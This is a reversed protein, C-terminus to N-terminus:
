DQTCNVYPLKVPSPINKQDMIYQLTVPDTITIQTDGAGKLAMSLNQVQFYCSLEFCDYGTSFGNLTVSGPYSPGVPAANRHSRGRTHAHTAAGAETTTLRSCVWM